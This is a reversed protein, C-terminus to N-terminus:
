EIFIKFGSVKMEEIVRRDMVKYAYERSMKKILTSKIEKFKPIGEPYADILKVIHFGDLSEIIGSIQGKEMAFVGHLEKRLEERSFEHPLIGGRSAEKGEGIKKAVDSFAETQLLLKHALTIKEKAAVKSRENVFGTYIQAIAVRAPKAFRKQNERYFLLAAAEGVQNKPAIGDEFWEDLAKAEALFRPAEAYPLGTFSFSEEVKKRGQEKEMKQLELFALGINAEHGAREALVLSAKRRFHEQIFKVSLVKLERQSFLTGEMKALKFRM